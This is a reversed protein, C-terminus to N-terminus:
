RDYTLEKAAHAWAAAASRFHNSYSNGIIIVDEISWTGQYFGSANYVAIAGPWKRM